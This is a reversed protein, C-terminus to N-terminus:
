NVSLCSEGIGFRSEVIIFDLDDPLAIVGIAFLSLASLNLEPIYGTVMVLSAKLRPDVLRFKTMSSSAAYLKIGTLACCVDLL